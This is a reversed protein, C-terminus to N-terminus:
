FTRTFNHSDSCKLTCSLPRACLATLCCTIYAPSFRWTVFNCVSVKLVVGCLRWENSTSSPEARTQRARTRARRVCARACVCVCVFARVGLSPVQPRRRYQSPAIKHEEAGLICGESTSEITFLTFHFSLLTHPLYVSNYKTHPQM